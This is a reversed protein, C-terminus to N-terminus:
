NCLALPRRECLKKRKAKAAVKSSAAATAATAAQVASLAQRVAEEAAAVAFIPAATAAATSSTASTAPDAHPAVSSFCYLWIDRQTRALMYAMRWSGWKWKSYYSRMMNPGVRMICRWGAGRDNCYSGIGRLFAPREGGAVEDAQLGPNRPDPHVVEEPDEEVFRDKLELYASLDLKGDDCFVAGLHTFRPDEPGAAGEVAPPPPVISHRLRGHAGIIGHGRRGHSEAKTDRWKRPRGRGRKPVEAGDVAAKTDRWKRPLGRGRKPVEAGDVALSLKQWRRRVVKTSDQVEEAYEKVTTKVDQDHKACDFTVHHQCRNRVCNSAKSMVSTRISSRRLSSGPLNNICVGQSSVTDSFGRAAVQQRWPPGDAFGSAIAPRKKIAAHLTVLPNDASGSTAAAAAPKKMEARRMVPPQQGTGSTQALRALQDGLQANDEGSTQALRALQDGLQANDEHLLKLQFQTNKRHERLDKNMKSCMRLMKANLEENHKEMLTEIVTRTVAM